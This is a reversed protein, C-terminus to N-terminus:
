LPLPPITLTRAIYQTGEVGRTCVHQADGCEGEVLAGTELVIQYKIRAQELREPLRVKFRLPSGEWAILVPEVPRQWLEERRQRLADAVDDQSSIPADLSKLVALVAEPPAARLQGFGDRYVTQLNYLRALTKLPDAVPM